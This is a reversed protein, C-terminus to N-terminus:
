QTAIASHVQQLTAIWNKLAASSLRRKQWYPRLCQELTAAPQGTQATWAALLISPEVLDNGLGLATQLRLQEAKGVTELVFKSSDAKQLITALAEIYARSNNSTAAILPTPSGFRRGAWILLLLLVALQILVLRIPTSLLYTFWHQGVEATIVDADKYGHIYEDIWLSNGAQAVLQALFRFNGPEAQYANAALYPTQFVIWEGAGVTRRLGIAGFTDGLVIADTSNPDLRRGTDIKVTGNQSAHQTSFPAETVAAQVGLVILRNGQKVWTEQVDDLGQWTPTSNVQVLTSPRDGSNKLEDLPKQWRQLPTGQAQMYAYWAGYGDPARSYTSGGGQNLNPALFLTLGVLALLAIAGRRWWPSRKTAITM